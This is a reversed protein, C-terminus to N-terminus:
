YVLKVPNSLTIQHVFNSTKKNLLEVFEEYDKEVKM